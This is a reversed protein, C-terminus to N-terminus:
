YGDASDIPSKSMLFLYELEGEHCSHIAYASNRFDVEGVLTIATIHERAGPQEMARLDRVVGM